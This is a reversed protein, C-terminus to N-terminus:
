QTYVRVDVPPQPANSLSFQYAGGDWPATLPRVTAGRNTCDMTHTSVNYTCGDTAGSRCANAAEVSIAAESTYSALKTCYNQLNLGLGVTGNTISTPSCPKTSDNTCNVSSSRQANTKGSTSTYGQTTATADTMSINTASSPGGDCVPKGPSLYPTNILHQNFVHLNQGNSTGSNTSSLDCPQTGDVLTNNFMFQGGSGDCNYVPLGAIDWYNSNGVDYIINNFWYEPIANPCFWLTVQGATSFATTAHRVINNYFVNPTNQPQNVANGASDFNCELLNGHTPQIPNDFFEFINDHIDHCWQGVGQTVYRIMSRRFHYFSPFTGWACAGPVSDSGDIVITDISQLGSNGGGLVICALSPPNTGATRTATWGHVYLNSEIIMGQGARGSGLYAIYTDESGTVTVRQTCLGTMEFNDFWSSIALSVMTNRVTPISLSDPVQYSCSGVLSTSPPNDANLIPRTWTSGSYWTQDVGWYVCGARTGDYTCTADNGSAYAKAYIDWTGGTFPSLSSNGFHWTDGGRFIFRDGAIPQTSACNATCAPMGPAHLWPSSKSTGSNSDSGNAAIYFTAATATLSSLLLALILFLTGRFANSM